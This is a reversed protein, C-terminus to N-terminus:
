IKMEMRRLIADIREKEAIVKPNQECSRTSHYTSSCYKCERLKGAKVKDNYKKCTSCFGEVYQGKDCRDGEMNIIGECRGVNCIVLPLNDFYDLEKEDNYNPEYKIVKENSFRIGLYKGNWKEEKHLVKGNEKILSELPRRKSFGWVCTGGYGGNQEVVCFVVGNEEEFKDLDKQKWHSYLPRYWETNTTTLDGLDKHKQIM